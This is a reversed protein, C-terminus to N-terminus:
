SGGLGLSLFSDWGGINPPLLPGRRTRVQTASEASGETQRPGESCVSGPWTALREAGRTGGFGKLRGVCHGRLGAAELLCLGGSPIRQPLFGPGAEGCGRAGSAERRSGGLWGPLRECAQSGAGVPNARAAYACVSM